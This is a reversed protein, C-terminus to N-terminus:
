RATVVPARAGPTPSAVSSERGPICVRGAGPVALTATGPEEAASAGLPPGADAMSPKWPKGSYGQAEQTSLLWCPRSTACPRCIVILPLEARPMVAGPPAVPM